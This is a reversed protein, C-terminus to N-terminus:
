KVNRIRQSPWFMFYSPIRSISLLVYRGLDDLIFQIGRKLLEQELSAEDLNRLEQPILEQYSGMEPPLISEFHTGYIPHNGWFFAYGANTNFLVFREFRTYNYVTFPLIMAVIVVGTIALSPVLSKFETKRGSWWVWFFIYPVFLLFLQRFLVSIGLSLGLLLALIGKERWSNGRNADVMLMALYLSALIALIYFSKTMLTAAYYIFYIYIASIGAAILGITESFLYKGLKFTLLPLLAGVIVAQIIRALLPSPGFISYVLVLFLTYLFSWHATPADAKTIPWWQEEFSFGHGEIVRIALQHYSIQDFTGPLEDVQNGFNFSAAVRLFISVIIIGLLYHKTKKTM